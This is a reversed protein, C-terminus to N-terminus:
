FIITICPVTISFTRYLLVINFLTQCKSKVLKNKLGAYSSKRGENSVENVDNCKSRKSMELFM